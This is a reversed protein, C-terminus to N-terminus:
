PVGCHVFAAPVGSLSELKPRAVQKNAMFHAHIGLDSHSEHGIIRRYLANHVFQIDAIPSVCM